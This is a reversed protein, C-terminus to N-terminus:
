REDRRICRVEARRVSIASQMMTRAAPTECNACTLGSFLPFAPWDSSAPLARLGFELQVCVCMCACTISILRFQHDLHPSRLSRPL